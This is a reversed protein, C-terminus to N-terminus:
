LFCSRSNRVYPLVTKFYPQNFLLTPTSRFQIPLLHRVTNLVSPTGFPGKFLPAQHGVQNPTWAGYLDYTMVNAIDLTRPFGEM